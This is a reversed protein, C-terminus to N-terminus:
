RTAPRYSRFQNGLRQNNAALTEPTADELGQGARRMAARTFQEQGERQINGRGTRRGACRGLISEGYQLAKSGTRQGATLSTVGEDALVDVLRQRAASAPL